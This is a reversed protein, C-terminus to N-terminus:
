YFNGSSAPAAPAPPAADSPKTIMEYANGTPDTEPLIASLQKTFESATWTTIQYQDCSTNTLVRIRDVDQPDSEDDRDAIAAFLCLAVLDTPLPSAALFEITKPDWLARLASNRLDPHLCLPKTGLANVAPRLKKM